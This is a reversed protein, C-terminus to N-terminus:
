AEAVESVPVLDHAAMSESTAVAMTACCHLLPSLLAQEATCAAVVPVDSADPQTAAARDADVLGVGGGM